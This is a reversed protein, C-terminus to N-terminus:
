GMSVADDEAASDVDAAIARRDDVVARRIAGSLSKALDTLSERIAGDIVSEAAPDSLRGALERPLELMRATVAAWALELQVRAADASVLLGEARRRENRLKRIKELLLRDELSRREANRERGQEAAKAAGRRRVGMSMDGFDRIRYADDLRWPGRTSVPCDPQALWRRMNTEAIGSARALSRLSDYLDPATGTPKEAKEQAAIRLDKNSLRNRRRNRSM